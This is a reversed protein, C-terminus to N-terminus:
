RIGKYKEKDEAKKIALINKITQRTKLFFNM